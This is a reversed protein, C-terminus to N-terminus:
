IGAAPRQLLDGGRGPRLIEAESHILEMANDLPWARLGENRFRRPAYPIEDGKLWRTAAVM